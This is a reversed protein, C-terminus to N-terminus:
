LQKFPVAAVGWDRPLYGSLMQRRVDIIELTSCRPPHLSCPLSCKTQM